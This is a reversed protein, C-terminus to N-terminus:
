VYHHAQLSNRRYCNQPFPPSCYGRRQACAFFAASPEHPSSAGLKNDRVDLTELRPLRWVEPLRDLSNDRLDLHQLSHMRELTMSLKCLCTKGFKECMFDHCQLETSGHLRLRSAKTRMAEALSSAWRGCTEEVDAAAVTTLESVSSAGKIEVARLRLVGVRARAVVGATGRTSM